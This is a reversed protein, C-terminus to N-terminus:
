AAPPAPPALAAQGDANAQKLAAVSTEIQAALAAVQAPDVTPQGGLNKLDTVLTELTQTEAQQAALLDSVAATIPALASM